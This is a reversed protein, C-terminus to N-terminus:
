RGLVFRCFQVHPAQYGRVTQPMFPSKALGCKHQDSVHATDISEEWPPIRFGCCPDKLASQTGLELMKQLNSASSLLDFFHDRPDGLFTTTLNCRGKLHYLSGIVPWSDSSEKLFNSHKTASSSGWLFPLLRRWSCGSLSVRCIRGVRQDVGFIFAECSPRGTRLTCLIREHGSDNRGKAARLADSASNSRSNCTPHQEVHLCFFPNWNM